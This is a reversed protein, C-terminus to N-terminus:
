KFLLKLGSDYRSLYIVTVRRPKNKRDKFFVVRRTADYSFTVWARIRQRM